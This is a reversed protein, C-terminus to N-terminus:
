PPARPWPSWRPRCPSRRPPTQVSVITIWTVLVYHLKCHVELDLPQSAPHLGSSTVAACAYRGSFQRTVGALTLSTPDVGCLRPGAEGGSAEDDEEGSAATDAVGLYDGAELEGAESLLVSDTVLEEEAGGGSAEAAEAAERCAPDPLQTLLGGNYYWVVAEISDVATDVSGETTDASGETTDVTDVTDLGCHLTVNGGEAELVPGPPQLRITSTALVCCPALLLCLLMPEMTIIM